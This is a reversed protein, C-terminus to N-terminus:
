TWWGEENDDVGNCNLFILIYGFIIAGFAFALAGEKSITGKVLPKNKLEESRSDIDVDLYENLTFGFIHTCVGIIYLTVLVIPEYCGTVIAGLVPTVGTLVASHLRAVKLYEGITSM